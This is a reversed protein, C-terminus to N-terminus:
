DWEEDNGIDRVELGYTEDFDRRDESARRSFFLETGLNDLIERAVLDSLEVEDDRAELDYPEGFDRADLGDAEDLDRKGKKKFLVKMGPRKLMEALKQIRLPAPLKINLPKEVGIKVTDADDDFRRKHKLNEYLLSRTLLGSAVDFDRTEFNNVEDLDRQYTDLPIPAAVASQVIAAISLTSLVIQTIAVM